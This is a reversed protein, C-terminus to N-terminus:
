VNFSISMPMTGESSITNTNELSHLPRLHRSSKRRISCDVHFTFNDFSPVEKTMVITRHVVISTKHITHKELAIGWGRDVVDHNELAFVNWIFHSPNIIIRM